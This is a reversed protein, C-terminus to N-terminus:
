DFWKHFTVNSNSLHFGFDTLVNQAPLNTIQTSYRMTQLGARALRRMTEAMLLRYLGQRRFDPSVAFLQGIGETGDICLTGFAAIRTNKEIVLVEAAVDRSLSRVAWSSYVADCSARDLRPDAHYHGVYGAFSERAVREIQSEDAPTASRISMGDPLAISPLEILARRYSVLVDMLHFGSDELSAITAFDAASCRVMLLQIQEGACARMVDPLTASTIHRAWAARIGFRAEDLPSREFM